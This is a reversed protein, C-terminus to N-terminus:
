PGSTTFLVVAQWRQSSLLTAPFFEPTVGMSTAHTASCSWGRRVLHKSSKSSDSRLLFLQAFADFMALVGLLALM